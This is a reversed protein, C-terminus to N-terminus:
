NLADTLIKRAHYMGKEFATCYASDLKLEDDDGIRLSKLESENFIIDNSLINVIDEKNIFKEM